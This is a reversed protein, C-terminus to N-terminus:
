QFCPMRNTRYFISLHICNVACLYLSKVIRLPAILIM